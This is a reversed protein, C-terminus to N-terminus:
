LFIYLNILIFRILCCLQINDCNLLLFYFFVTESKIDTIKDTKAGFVITRFLCLPVM